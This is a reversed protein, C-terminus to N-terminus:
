HLLPGQTDCGSAPAPSVVGTGAAATATNIHVYGAGGGGYDFGAGYYGNGGAREDGAAGAGLPPYGSPAAATSALGATGTRGGGGGGGGNAALVGNTTVSPAELLIGGGAGGGGGGTEDGSGGEGGANIIGSPSVLISVGASIQIGGGGRAAPSVGPADEGGLLPILTQSGYTGDAPEGSQGDGGKGCFSGGTQPHSRLPAKTSGAKVVITGDISVTKSVLFAAVRAGRTTLIAGAPVALSRAVFVAIEPAGPGQSVRATAFGTVANICKITLADTDVVCPGALTLDGSGACPDVAVSDVNSPKYPFACASSGKPAPPADPAAPADTAPSEPAPAGADADGTTGVSTTTCGLSLGACLLAIPFTSLWAPRSIDYMGRYRALTAGRRGANSILYNRRPCGNERSPVGTKARSQRGARDAGVAFVAIEATVTGGTENM